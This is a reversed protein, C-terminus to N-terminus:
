QVSIGPADPNQRNAANHFFEILYEKLKKAAGTQYRSSDSKMNIYRMCRPNSIKVLKIAPTNEMGHWSVAPVFALGGGLAILDRVIEPSDSEMIINPLFGAMRCYEDTIERLGKGKHLCIFPRDALLALDIENDASLPDASPLALYLEEEMLTMESDGTAPVMSSYITIDVSSDSAVDSKQQMIDLRIDPSRERFGAVLEPLLKSCAYMMISVSQQSNNKQENLELAINDYSKFINMAHKLLIHGSDNLLITKGVRDFLQVGLEDELTKLARSLAPQAIHLVEAAKTMHELEAMVMFYKLQTFDM